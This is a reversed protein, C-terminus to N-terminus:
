NVIRIDFSSRFSDQNWYFIFAMEIVEAVAALQSINKFNIINRYDQPVFHEGKTQRLPKM